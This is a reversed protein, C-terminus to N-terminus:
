IMEKGKMTQKESVLHHAADFPDVLYNFPCGVDGSQFGQILVIARKAHVATLRDGM